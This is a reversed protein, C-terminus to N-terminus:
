GDPMDTLMGKGFPIARAEREGVRGRSKSGWSSDNM